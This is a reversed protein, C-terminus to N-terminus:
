RVEVKSRYVTPWDGPPGGSCRNLRNAEALRFTTGDFVWSTSSGCDALGRGKAAEHITAHEPDWDVETHFGQNPQDGVAAPLIVVRGKEPADRPARVVLSYGQYAGMLCGLFVVVEGRGLPHAADDPRREDTACDEKTLVAAQAKRVRAAFGAPVTLSPDARRAVLVPPAPPAPVTTDPAAGKRVFAGATGLRGQAEDVALLAAKFGTLTVAQQQKGDSFTLVDGDSLTRLYGLAEAGEAVMADTEADYRWRLNRGFPIGDLTLSRVDPRAGEQTAGGLSVRLRGRPGGDRAVDFYAEFGGDAEPAWRVRCTRLNDCAVVFDKIERYVPRAPQPAPQQAVAAAALFALTM